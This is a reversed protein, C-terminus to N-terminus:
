AIRFLQSRSRAKTPSVNYCGASSGLRDGPWACATTWPSASRALAKASAQHCPRCGAQQAHLLAEGGPDALDARQPLGPLVEQRLQNLAGLGHLPWPPSGARSRPWCAPCRGLPRTTRPVTSAIEMVDALAQHTHQQGGVAELDVVQSAVHGGSAKMALGRTLASMTAAEARSVVGHGGLSVQDPPPGAPESAPGPAPPPAGVVEAQARLDSRDGRSRHPPSPRRSAARTLAKQSAQSRSRGRGRRRAPCWASPAPGGAARRGLRPVQLARAPRRREVPGIDLPCRRRGCLENPAARHPERVEGQRGSSSSFAAATRAGLRPTRKTIPSTPCRRTSGGTTLAIGRNPAGAELAAPDQRFGADVGEVRFWSHDAPPGAPRAGNSVPGPVGTIAERVEAFARPKEVMM